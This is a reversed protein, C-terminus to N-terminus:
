SLLNILPILCFWILYTLAVVIISDIRKPPLPDKIYGNILIALYISHPIAFILIGKFVQPYIGFLVLLAVTIASLGTFIVALRAANKQGFQVALTRKDALKDAQYDPIGALTISPLISLCLPLSIIWPIPETVAGGLFLYGSLVVCFSHTVSVTLEGLTHYALKLPAATYGLALVILALSNFLIELHNRSASALVALLMVVSLGFAVVIGKKIQAFNLLRNVLVRSGGTFASFYQNEKDTKYDARENILVTTVELFFLWAYGFWFELSQFLKIQQNAALAGVTYAVATMPYFQLRIAKIWSTLKILAKKQTSLPGTKLKLGENRVSDLWKKRQAISSSKMPGFTLTSTLEFGCFELLSRRMANNGPARYFLQYVLRPTDMTTILQATKGRLLPTYGTGGETEHFAFGETFVRDIFGKLLAPMTGWWTPYIFIIHDAWSILRKAELIAPELPQVNPSNHIVNPNFSLDALQLVEIGVEPNYAAGSIYAQAIAESFSYKRPHGIIVLVNLLM